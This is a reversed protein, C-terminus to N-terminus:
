RVAISRGPSLPIGQAGIAEGEDTVGVVRFFVVSRNQRRLTKGAPDFPDVRQLSRQGISVVQACRLEAKFFKLPIASSRNQIYNGSRLDERQQGRGRNSGPKEQLENVYPGSGPDFFM